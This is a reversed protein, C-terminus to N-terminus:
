FQMSWRLDNSAALIAPPVEFRRRLSQNLFSRMPASPRLKVPQLGNDVATFDPADSGPKIEPGSLTVPNGKFSVAGARDAM